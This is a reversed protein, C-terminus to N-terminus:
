KVWSRLLPPKNCMSESIGQWWVFGIIGSADQLEGLVFDKGQPTKREVIQRLRYTGNLQDGDAPNLPTHPPM